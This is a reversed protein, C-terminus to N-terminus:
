HTIYINDSYLIHALLTPSLTCQYTLFLINTNTNYYQLPYLLSFSYFHTMLLTNTNNQTKLFTYTFFAHISIMNNIHTNNTLCQDLQIIINQLYQINAHSSAYLMYYYYYIYCQVANLFTICLCIHIIFLYYYINSWM